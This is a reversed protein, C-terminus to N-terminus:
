FEREECTSHCTLFGLNRNESWLGFPFWNERKHLVPKWSPVSVPIGSPLSSKIDFCFVDACWWNCGQLKFRWRCPHASHGSTFFLGPCGPFRWSTWSSGEGIHCFPCFEWRSRKLKTRPRRGHAKRRRWPVHSASVQSYVEEQDWTGEKHKVKVKM